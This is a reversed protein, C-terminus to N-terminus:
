ALTPTPPAISPYQTARAHCRCRWADSSSSASCSSRLAACLAYGGQNPLESLWNECIGFQGARTALGGMSNLASAEGQRDKAVRWMALAKQYQDFAQQPQGQEEYIKGLNFTASAARCLRAQPMNLSAIRASDGTSDNTEGSCQMKIASARQRTPWRTWAFVATLSISAHSVIGMGLHEDVGSPDGGM